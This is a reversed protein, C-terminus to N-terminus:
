RTIVMTKSDSREGNVILTYTYSGAALSGASILLQGNGAGLNSFTKVVAGTADVVDIACKGCNEPLSYRIVTNESFPNPANQELLPKMVPVSAGMSTTGSMKKELSALRENLADIQTQKDDIISQQEQIGAVLVPILGTYSMAKFDFGPDIEKGAADQQAPNHTDMVLTPFVKEVEQAILGMQTGAPLNFGPHLGVDYRYTKPALQLLSALSGTLPKIDQKLRADSTTWLTNSTSFQQGNSYVAWNTTAGSASAYVGYATAGGSGSAWLGYNVSTGGAVNSGAARLGFANSLFKGSASFNGGYGLQWANAGGPTASAEVGTMVGTTRTQNSSANAVVGRLSGGTGTLAADMTAAAFAGTTVGLEM